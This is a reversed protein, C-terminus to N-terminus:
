DQFSFTRLSDSTSYPLSSWGDTRKPIRNASSARQVSSSRTTSLPSLTVIAATQSPVEASIDNVVTETVTIETLMTPILQSLSQKLPSSLRPQPMTLVGTHMHHQELLRPAPLDLPAEVSVPRGPLVELSRQRSVSRSPGQPMECPALLEVPRQSAQQSSMQMRNALRSTPTRPTGGLTQIMSPVGVAAGRNSPLPSHIRPACGVGAQMSKQVVEVSYPLTRVPDTLLPPHSVVSPVKM